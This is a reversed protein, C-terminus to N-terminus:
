ESKSEEFTVPPSGTSAMLDINVKQKEDLKLILFQPREIKYDSLVLDWTGVIKLLDGPMRSKTAETEKMFTITLPVAIKRTVGHVSFNGEVMLEVPEGDELTSQSASVVRTLEFVAKPYKGTELFRERMDKDRMGIGTDLSGLDVEFRGRTAKSVDGPDAEVFGMIEATRGIITELPAKSTFSVIDKKKPDNAYFVKSVEQAMAGSTMLLLLLVVIFKRV